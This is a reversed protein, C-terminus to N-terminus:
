NAYNSRVKANRGLLFVTKQDKQKEPETTM